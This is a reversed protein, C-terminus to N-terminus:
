SGFITALHATLLPKVLYGQAGAKEARQQDSMEASSTLVYVKLDRLAPEARLWELVEHGTFEPMKLDLLVVEPLPYRTRDAYDGKGALYDMAQRGDAVHFVPAIGAKALVRKSLFLDDDNDEALLVAVPPKM